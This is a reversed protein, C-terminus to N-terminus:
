VIGAKALEEPTFAKLAEKLEQANRAGRVEALKPEDYDQRREYAEKIDALEFIKALIPRIFALKEEVMTQVNASIQGSQAIAELTGWSYGAVLTCLDHRQDRARKYEQKSIKM